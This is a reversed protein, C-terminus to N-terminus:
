HRPLRNQTTAPVLSASAPVWNRFAHEMTRSTGAMLFSSCPVAQATTGSGGQHVIVSAHPFVDAYSAYPVRLIADSHTEVETNFKTGVLLDAHTSQVFKLLHDYTPQIHPLIIQRFLVEIGRKIDECQAILDRDTPDWHPRMPYFDLDIAEVNSRYHITTAITVSHSRRHLELAFRL